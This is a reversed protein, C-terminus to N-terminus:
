RQKRNKWQKRFVPVWVAEIYAFAPDLGDDRFLRGIQAEMATPNGRTALFQNSTM